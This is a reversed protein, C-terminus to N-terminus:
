ALPVVWRLVTGSVPGPEVDLHGGLQEARCRLNRLGNGTPGPQLGRGDDIVEVSLEAGARVAIEVRSAHAHRMVNALAERAVAMVHRRLPGVTAADIPGELTVVPEIGLLRSAEATLDLIARRLGVEAPRHAELSFIVQRIERIVSDIEDLHENMRDGVVTAGALGATTHMALGAAFLRQVVSDHLERGIREREAILTVDRSPGIGDAAPALTAGPRDGRRAPTRPDVSAHRTRARDLEDPLDSGGSRPLTAPKSTTIM